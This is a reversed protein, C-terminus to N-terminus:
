SVQTMSPMPWRSEIWNVAQTLLTFLGDHCRNVEEISLTKGEARAEMLQSLIGADVSFVKSFVPIRDRTTRPVDIGECHLIQTLAVRIGPFTDYVFKSYRSRDHGFTVFAHKLRLRLNRISQECLFRLMSRDPTFDALIDEGHLVRYNRQISAFKLAFVLRSREFGKRGLVFPEIRPRGRITEAIVSHAEPTAESLVILLNIDSQGAVHEGRVASGYFVCSYLNAGLRETLENVLGLVIQNVGEAHGM